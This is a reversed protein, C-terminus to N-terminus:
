LTMTPYVTDELKECKSHLTPISLPSFDNYFIKFQQHFYGSQNRDSSGLLHNFFRQGFSGKFSNSLNQEFTCLIQIKSCFLHM